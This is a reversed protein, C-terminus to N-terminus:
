LVVSLAASKLVANRRCSSFLRASTAGKGCTGAGLGNRVAGKVVFTGPHPVLFSTAMDYDYWGSFTTKPQDYRDVQLECRVNFWTETRIMTAKAEAATVADFDKGELFAAGGSGVGIDGGNTRILQRKLGLDWAKSSLSAQDDVDVRSATKLSLYIWPNKSSAAIGGASADVRLTRTQGSTSLIEVEGKSVEDVPRLAQELAPGCVVGGAAGGGHGGDSSGGGGSASTAGGSGGSSTTPSTDQGGCAVYLLASSALVAATRWFM